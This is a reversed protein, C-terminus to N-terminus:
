RRPDAGAVTRVRRSAWAQWRSIALLRFLIRLAESGAARVRGLASPDLQERGYTGAVYAESVARLSSGAPPVTRALAETFEYPTQGPGPGAGSWTALRAVQAYPRAFPPLGKIGWFWLVALVLAGVLLLALLVGAIILLPSPGAQAATSPPLAFSAGDDFEEDDLFYPDLEEDEFLNQLENPDFPVLPQALRPPSQRNASPEFTIWGYGPFYV